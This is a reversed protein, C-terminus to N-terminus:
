GCRMCFSKIFFFLSNLTLSRTIFFKLTRSFHKSDNHHVVVLCLEGPPEISFFGGALAFSVSSKLEIGLDPLDGPPAFPLGSQRAQFIGHVPSGPLGCDMPDCLIPCSQAVSCILSYSICCQVLEWLVRHWNGSQYFCVKITQKKESLLVGLLNDMEIYLAAYCVCVCECM